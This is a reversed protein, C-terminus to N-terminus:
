VVKRSKPFKKSKKSMTFVSRNFVLTLNNWQFFSQISIIMIYFHKETKSNKAKWQGQQQKENTWKSPFVTWLLSLLTSHGVFKQSFSCPFFYKRRIAFLFYSWNTAVFSVYDLNKALKKLIKHFVIVKKVAKATQPFGQLM